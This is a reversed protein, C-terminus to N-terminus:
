SVAASEHQALARPEKDQFLHFVCQCATRLNIAFDHSVSGGTLCIMPHAQLLAAFLGRMGHSQCHVFCSNPRLLNPVDVIVPCGRIQVVPDLCPGRTECEFPMCEPYWPRRQFTHDPM